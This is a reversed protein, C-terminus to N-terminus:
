TVVRAAPCRRTLYGLLQEWDDKAKMVLRHEATKVELWHSVFMRASDSTVYHRVLVVAEPTDRVAHMVPRMREPSTKRAAARGILVIVGGFGAVVVAIGWQQYAVGYLLGMGLFLAAVLTMGRRFGAATQDIAQEMRVLLQALEGTELPRPDAM